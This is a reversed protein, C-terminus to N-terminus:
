EKLGPNREVNASMVNPALFYKTAGTGKQINLLMWPRSKSLVLLM